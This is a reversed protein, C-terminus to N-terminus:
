CGIRDGGSDGGGGGVCGGVGGGGCGGGGDGGSGFSKVGFLLIPTTARSNGERDWTGGNGVIDWFGM